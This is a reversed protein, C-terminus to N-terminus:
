SFLHERLEAKAEEIDLRYRPALCTGPVKDVPQEIGALPQWHLHL